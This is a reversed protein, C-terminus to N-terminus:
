KYVLGVVDGVLGFPRVAVEASISVELGEIIPPPPPPLRFLKLTCVEGVCM